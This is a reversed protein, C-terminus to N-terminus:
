KIILKKSSVRQKDVIISYFYSGPKLNSVDIRAHNASISLKETKVISGLVNMIQIEANQSDEFTYDINFYDTAPNPYTNSVTNKSPANIGADLAVYYKVIFYMSDTTNNQDFISYAVVTYGSQGQPMYDTSFTGPATSEGANFETGIPSLNTGPPYCSGFCFYHLSGSVESLMMQRVKFTKKSTATNKATFYLTHISNLDSSFFRVTDGFNVVNNNHDKLEISQAFTASILISLLITTFFRKM